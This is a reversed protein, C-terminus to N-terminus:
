QWAVLVNGDDGIAVTPLLIDLERSQDVLQSKVDWTRISVGSSSSPGLLPALVLAIVAV